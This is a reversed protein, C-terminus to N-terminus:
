DDRTLQHLAELPEYELPEMLRGGINRERALYAMVKPGADGIAGFMSTAKTGGMGPPATTFAYYRFRKVSADFFYRYIRFRGLSWSWGCLLFECDPPDEAAPGVARSLVENIVNNLHGAFKPLDLTRLQSGEYSSGTAVAQFILPLARLTDGAFAIIADSRGVDFIKACADWHEGGGLRSDSAVILERLTGVRREWAIVATM